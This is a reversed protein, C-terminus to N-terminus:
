LKHFLKPSRVLSYVGHRAIGEITLFILICALKTKLTKISMDFTQIVDNFHDCLLADFDRRARARNFAELVELHRNVRPM